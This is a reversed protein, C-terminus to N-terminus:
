WGFTKQTFGKLVNQADLLEAFEELTMKVPIGNWSKFGGNEDSLMLSSLRDLSKKLTQAEKETVRFSKKETAM